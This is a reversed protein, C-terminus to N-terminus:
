ELYGGVDRKGDEIRSSSVERGQRGRGEVSSLVNFMNASDGKFKVGISKGIECVDEVVM